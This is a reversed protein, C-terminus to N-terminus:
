RRGPLAAKITAASMHPDGTEIVIRSYKVGELDIVLVNDGRRIAYFSRHGKTRYSGAVILGPVSTGPMRLGIPMSDLKPQVEVATVATLPVVIRNKFAWIKNLGRLRVVLSSGEVEAAALNGGAVSVFLLLILLGVVSILVVTSGNM